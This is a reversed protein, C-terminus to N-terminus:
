YLLGFLTCVKLKDIFSQTLLQLSSTGVPVTSKLTDLKNGQCYLGSLV